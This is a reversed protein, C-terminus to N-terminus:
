GSDGTTRSVQRAAKRIPEANAIETAFAAMEDLCLEDEDSGPSEVPEQDTPPTPVEEIHLGVEPHNSPSAVPETAPAPKSV